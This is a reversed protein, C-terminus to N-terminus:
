MENTREQHYLHLRYKNVKLDFKKEWQKQDTSSFIFENTTVKAESKTKKEVPLFLIENFDIFM